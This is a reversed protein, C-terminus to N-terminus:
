PVPGLACEAGHCGPPSRWPRREGSNGCWNGGRPCQGPTRCRWRWERPASSPPPPRSSMSPTSPRVPLPYSRKRGEVIAGGTWRGAAKALEYGGRVTGYATGKAIAGAAIKMKVAPSDPDEGRSRYYERLREVEAKTYEATRTTVAEATGRLTMDWALELAVKGYDPNGSTRRNEEMLANYGGIVASAIGAGRLLTSGRAGSGGPGPKEGPVATKKMEAAMELAFDKGHRAEMESIADGLRSPPLGKLTEAAAKRLASRSEPSSSGAAMDGLTSAYNKLAKETLHGSLADM